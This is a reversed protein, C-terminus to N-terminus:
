LGSFFKRILLVVTISWSLSKLLSWILSAMWMRFFHGDSFRCSSENLRVRLSLGVIWLMWVLFLWTLSYLMRWVVLILLGMLLLAPSSTIAGTATLLLVGIIVLFGTLWSFMAEGDRSLLLVVDNTDGLICSLISENSLELLFWFKEFRECLVCGIVNRMRM